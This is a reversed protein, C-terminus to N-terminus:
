IKVYDKAIEGMTKIELLRKSRKAAAYKLIKEFDSFLKESDDTFDTPHTYLHFVENKNIAAEIGRKANEFRVGKSILRRLGRGSVFYSSGRVNVLGSKITLKSTQPPLPFILELFQIFKGFFRNTNNLDLRPGRFNTFGYKSLIKLHGVSNRPFVFSKINIGEKRALEICMKIDTEACEKTTSKHGFIIHSFSHSGIEQNTKMKIERVVDKAYWGPNKKITGGPDHEFWDGKKWFYHPRKIEPHNVGNKPSCRELFLHGVIAWTASIKYKELLDLLRKILIREKQARDVFNRYTPLDHRGWMLETDFSICFVGKNM